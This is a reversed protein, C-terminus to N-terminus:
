CEMGKAKWVEGKCWRVRKDKVRFRIKRDKDEVEKYRIDEM